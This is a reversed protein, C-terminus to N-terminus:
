LLFCNCSGMPSIVHQKQAIALKATKLTDKSMKLCGQGFTSANFYSLLKLLELIGPM